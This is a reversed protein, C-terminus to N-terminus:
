GDNILNSIKNGNMKSLSNHPSKSIKLAKMSKATGNSFISFDNRLHLEQSDKVHFGFDSKSTPMGMNYGNIMM